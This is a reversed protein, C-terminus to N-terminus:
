KTYKDMIQIFEEKLQLALKTQYGDAMEICLGDRTIIKKVYKLNVLSSKHSRYFGHGSLMEEFVKLTKSVMIVRKEQLYFKSYNVDGEIHIIDSINIYERSETTNLVIKVPKQSQINELLARFDPIQRLNIINKARNVADILEPIKVPKLLYDIASFKFAQIAYQNYATIFIIQFDINNHSKLFDFGDEGPMEIDLFILDPKHFTILKRAEAASRATGIIDIDPLYEQIILELSENAVLEDDVLIVKM